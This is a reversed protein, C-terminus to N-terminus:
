PTEKKARELLAVCESQLRFLWEAHGEGPKEPPAHLSPMWSEVPGLRKKWARLKALESLIEADHGLDEGQIKGTQNPDEAETTEALKARLERLEAEQDCWKKEAKNREARVLEIEERLYRLEAIAAFARDVTAQEELSDDLESELAELDVPEASM